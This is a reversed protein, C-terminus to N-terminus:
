NETMHNKLSYKRVHEEYTINVKGNDGWLPSSTQTLTPDTQM